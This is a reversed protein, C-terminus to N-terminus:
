RIVGEGQLRQRFYLWPGRAVSALEYWGVRSVERDLETRPGEHAVVSVKPKRWGTQVLRYVAYPSRKLAMLFTRPKLLIKTLWAGLGTGYGRAQLRLAALDDRHRHWVLASPQTVLTRGDLLVRTIMDIDEAGGTRTGVGFATDFGRMALAASRRISFNAGTGLDGIAFPFMPLHKPPDALTYLHPELNSSWGARDDFYGQVRTRLEGSPVLGTVCDVRPSLAYGAALERLWHIDVVTDDDTFAVIEGTAAKLGANRARALGPVPEEVLTVRPDNIENLVLDRSESTQGANDVVVVTFDPYDSNLIARLSTRLLHARDRSCVIVTFSPLTHKERADDALASIGTRAPLAAVRAILEDRDVVGDSVAVDVFGRVRGHDRVLLRARQYGESSELRIEAGEELATTDFGGVWRAAAWEPPKTSTMAPTLSVTTM